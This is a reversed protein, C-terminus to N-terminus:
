EPIPNLPVQFLVVLATGVENATFATAHWYVRRLVHTGPSAAIHLRNGCIRRPRVRFASAADYPRTVFLVVRGVRAAADPREEPAM